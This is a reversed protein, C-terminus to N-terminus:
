IFPDYYLIDFIQTFHNKELITQIKKVYNNHITISKLKKKNKFNYINFKTDDNLKM